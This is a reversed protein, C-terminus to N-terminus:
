RTMKWWDQLLILLPILKGLYLKERSVVKFSCRSAWGSRFTHMIKTALEKCMKEQEENYLDEIIQARSPKKGQTEWPNSNDDARDLNGKVLPEAAPDDAYTRKAFCSYLCRVAKLRDLAIVFRKSSDLKEALVFAEEIGELEHLKISGLDKSRKASVAVIVGDHNIGVVGVGARSLNLAGDCFLYVENKAPLLLRVLTTDPINVLPVGPEPKVVLLHQEM